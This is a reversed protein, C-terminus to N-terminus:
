RDTFGNDSSFLFTSIKRRLNFSCFLVYKSSIFDLFKESRNEDLKKREEDSMLKLHEAPPLPGVIHEESFSHTLSSMIEIGDM